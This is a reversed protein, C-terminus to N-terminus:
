AGFQGLHHEFHRYHFKPWNKSGLDGFVPHSSTELTGDAIGSIFTDVVERLDDMTGESLVNLTGGSNDKFKVNKPFKIIGERLLPGVINKLLFNGQYPVNTSSEMSSKVVWVLHGVLTDKRLTGWAPEADDPISEIRQLIEDVTNRDLAPM